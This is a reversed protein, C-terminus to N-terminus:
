KRLPYKLLVTRSCSLLQPGQQQSDAITTLSIQFVLSLISVAQLHKRGVPRAVQMRWTKDHFTQLIKQLAGDQSQEMALLFIIDWVARQKIQKLQPIGRKNTKIHRHISLVPHFTLFTMLFRLLIRRLLLIRFYPCINPIAMQQRHVCNFPRNRIHFLALFM